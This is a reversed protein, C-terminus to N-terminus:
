IQVGNEYVTANTGITITGNADLGSSPGQTPFYLYVTGGLITITGNSDLADVDNGSVTVTILGGNINLESGDDNTAETGMTANIGDDTADITVTGNNITILPAELGEISDIIDLTGDNITISTEAKIADDASDISITGSNIYVSVDAKVAKAEDAETTTTGGGPGGPGGGGGSTSIVIENGTTEIYITPQTTGDGFTVDTDSSVGRGGDGSNILTINGDIFNVSGDSKICAGHYADDEGDTNTYVDGHGSSTITLTGSQMNLDGDCSIGRSAEGTTTITINTGDINVDEDAKIFTCYSTDYGLNDTELVVDGEASGILTGGLLSISQKSKLGKSQNGLVSLDINGGTIVMTSDTAIAKVDDSISTITINGCNIEVAGEDADIGDKGSDLITLNGGDMFFGEKAHLGDKVASNITIDGQEIVFEEDTAIGHQDDGLGNVTLSGGGIFVIKGESFLTAKQDEEEGDTIEAADYTLGDTLINSSNELLHITAKKDSQINIAPGVPNTIDVNDLILNFRKDSYIKINGQTTTGSCIYNIDKDSSTSTITVYAGSTVVNVDSSLPNTVSVTSDSYDIYVNKSLDKTITLSDVESLNYEVLVGDNLFNLITHTNNVYLSDDDYITYTDTTSTSKHINLINQAGVSIVVTLLALLTLLQKM